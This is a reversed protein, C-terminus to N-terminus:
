VAVLNTKDAKTELQKVKPQNMDPTGVYVVDEGAESVKLPTIDVGTAECIADAIHDSRGSLETYTVQYTETGDEQTQYTTCGIQLGGNRGNERTSIGIFPRFNGTRPKLHYSM